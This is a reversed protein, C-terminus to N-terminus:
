EGPLPRPLYTRLCHDQIPVPSGFDFGYMERLADAPSWHEYEMRYLAVFTGTRHRGGICHVSVPFNAPQDMLEFFAEFQEPGFWPWYAEGGMPWHLHKAGLRAIAADEDAGSPEGQDLLNRRLASNDRRLCAISRVDYHGVLVEFGRQTPQASRYLVGERVVAFRKLHFNWLAARSLVVGLAAGLILATALVARRVGRCPKHSSPRRASADAPPACPSKHADYPM